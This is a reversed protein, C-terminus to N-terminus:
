TLNISGAKINRTINKYYLKITLNILCTHLFPITTVLPTDTMLSRTYLSFWTIDTLVKGIRSAMSKKWSGKWQREELNRQSVAKRTGESYTEEGKRRRIPIWEMVQKPLNDTMRHVYSYWILQKSEVDEIITGKIKVHRQMKENSVKQAHLIRATRRLAYMETAEVLKKNREM